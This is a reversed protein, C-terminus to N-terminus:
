VHARGIQGGGPETLVNNEHNQVFTASVACPPAPGSGDDGGLWHWNLDETPQYM